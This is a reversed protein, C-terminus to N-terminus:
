FEGRVEIRYRHTDKKEGQLQQDLEYELDITLLGDLFNASFTSSVNRADDGESKKDQSYAVGVTYNELIAWDFSASYAYDITPFADDGSTDNATRIASLEIGIGDLVDSWSLTVDTSDDRTINSPAGDPFEVVRGYTHQLSAKVGDGLSLEYGLSVELTRTRTVTGKFLDEERNRSYTPTFELQPVGKFAMGLELTWAGDEAEKEGNKSAVSYSRSAVLTVQDDWFSADVSGEWSDDLAHESPEGAKKPWTRADGRDFSGAFSLTELPAYDLTVSYDRTISYKGGDSDRTEERQDGYSLGLDIKETVAMDYTAEGSWTDTVDLVGTELDKDWNLDRSLSLDLGDWLNWSVKSTVANTLTDDRELVGGDDRLTLGQQRGHSWAMEAKISESVPVNVALETGYRRDETDKDAEPSDSRDRGIDLSFDVLELFSHSYILEENTDRSSSGSGGQTKFKVEPLRDDEPQVAVDVGWTSEVTKTRDKGPERKVEIAEDWVFTVDWWEAALGLTLAPALSRSDTDGDPKEDGSDTVALSLDFTFELATTLDTEFTVGYSQEFTETSTRSGAVGKTIETSREKSAGAELSWTAGAAPRSALAGALLAAVAFARLPHPM